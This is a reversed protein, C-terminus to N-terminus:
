NIKNDMPKKPIEKMTGQEKWPSLQPSTSANKKDTDKIEMMKLNDLEELDYSSLRTKMESEERPM